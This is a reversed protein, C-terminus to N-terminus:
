GESGGRSWAFEVSECLLAERRQDRQDEDLLGELLQDVDDFRMRQVFMGDDLGVFIKSKWVIFLVKM